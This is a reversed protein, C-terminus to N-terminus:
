LLSHSDRRLGGVEAGHFSHRRRAPTLSAARRPHDGNESFAENKELKLYARIQQLAKAPKPQPDQDVFRKHFLLFDKSEM